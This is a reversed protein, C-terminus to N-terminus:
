RVVISIPGALKTNKGVIDQSPLANGNSGPPYVTVRAPPSISTAYIDGSADVAVAVTNSLRTKSGTIVDLPAADGNSGAAYVLVKNGSSVYINDNSDVAIGGLPPVQTSPGTIDQVLTFGSGSPSYVHISYPCSSSSVYDQGLTYLDGNVDLAIAAFYGRDNVIAIPPVNGNSGAKYETVWAQEQSCFDGESGNMAYVNGISDVAVGEPMALDTLSGWITRMPKVKGYKGAQFMQIAFYNPQVSDKSVSTYVNDNSDVALHNSSGIYTGTM